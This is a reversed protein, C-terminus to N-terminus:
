ASSSTTSTTALSTPPQAFFTWVTGALDALDFPDIADLDAETVPHNTCIRPVLMMIPDVEMRLLGRLSIGRLDGGAPRRLILESVATGGVQLPTALPVKTSATM